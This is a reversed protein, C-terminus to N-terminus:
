SERQKCLGMEANLTKFSDRVSAQADGYRLKAPVEITFTSRERVLYAHMPLGTLVNKLITQQFFARMRGSPYKGLRESPVTRNGNSNKSACM